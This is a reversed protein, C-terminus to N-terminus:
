KRVPPRAKLAVKPHRVVRSPPLFSPGPQAVMLTPTDTALTVIGGDGLQGNSDYGFCQVAGSTIYCASQSTAGVTFETFLAGSGIVATPVTVITNGMTGIGIQG